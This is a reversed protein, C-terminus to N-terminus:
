VMGATTVIKGMVGAGDQNGSAASLVLCAANLGTWTATMGVLTGLPNEKSVAQFGQIAEAVAVGSVGGGGMLVAFDFTVRKTLAALKEKDAETVGTKSNANNMVQLMTSILVGGGLALWYKLSPDAQFCRWMEAERQADRYKKSVKYYQRDKKPKKETTM